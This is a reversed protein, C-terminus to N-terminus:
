RDKKPFTVLTTAKDDGGIRQQRPEQLARGAPFFLQDGRGLALRRNASQALPLLGPLDRSFSVGL